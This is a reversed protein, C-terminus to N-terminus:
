RDAWAPQPTAVLERFYKVSHTDRAIRRCLAIRNASMGVQWTQIVSIACTVSLPPADVCCILVNFFIELPM